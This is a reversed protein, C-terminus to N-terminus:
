REINKRHEPSSWNASSRQWINGIGKVSRIDGTEVLVKVDVTLAEVVRAANHFARSKFPNEGKLEFLTGMEDLVSAIQKQDM